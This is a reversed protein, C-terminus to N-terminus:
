RVFYLLKMKTDILPEFITWLDLLWTVLRPVPLGLIVADTQRYQKWNKFYQHHYTIKFLVTKKKWPSFKYFQLNKTVHTM